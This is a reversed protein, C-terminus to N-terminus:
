RSTSRASVPAGSVAPAPARREAVACADARVADELHEGRGVVLRRHQDPVGVAREGLHRAVARPDRGGPERLARAPRVHLHVDARARHRACMRSSPSTSCSSPSTSTPAGSVSSTAPSRSSTVGTETPFGCATTRSRVIASSRRRRPGSRSRWGRKGSRVLTWSTSTSPGCVRRTDTQSRPAPSVDDDPELATAAAAAATACPQHSLGTVTHRGPPSSRTSSRPRCARSM